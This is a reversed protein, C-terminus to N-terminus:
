ARRMIRKGVADEIKALRVKYDEARKMVAILADTADTCAKLKKTADVSFAQLEIKLAAMDENGGAPGFFDERIQAVWGPMVKLVEAVTEDTDGGTYRESEVDYATELMDMIERKQARTPERPQEEVKKTPTMRVVKRKAECSPCRLKGKVYAWGQGKLKAHIQAEDPVAVLVGKSRGNRHYACAVVEDRTCGEGDCIAKAHPAGGTSKMAEIM